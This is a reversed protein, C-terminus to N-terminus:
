VVGCWSVGLLIYPWILWVFCLVCSFVAVCVTILFGLVIVLTIWGLGDFSCVVRSLVFLVVLWGVVLAFCVGWFGVASLLLSIFWVWWRLLRAGWGFEYLLLLGLAFWVM